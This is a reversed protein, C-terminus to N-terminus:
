TPSFTYALNFSSSKHRFGLTQYLHIASPNNAWVGLTVSQINQAALHNLATTLLFRGYGMGQKEPVIGVPEVEAQQPTPLHLWVFGIAADNEMLYYLSADASWTARIEEPTFPQFWPTHAFCRQYLLPLTCVATEQEIKQLHCAAPSPMQPKVPLKDLVMTWEEHTQVFQQQQLFRATPSNLDSVTSSIQQVATGAVAEKIHQWLFRGAGQRQYAPDIGGILEFLHPLGPIPQLTAFGIPQQRQTIMWFRGNAQQMLQRLHLPTTSPFVATAIAALSALDALQAPCIAWLSAKM